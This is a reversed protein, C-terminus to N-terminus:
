ATSCSKAQSAYRMAVRERTAMGGWMGWPEDHALRAGPLGRAGSLGCLRSQRGPDASRPRRGDVPRRRPGPLSSPRTWDGPAPRPPGTVGRLQQLPKTLPDRYPPRAM